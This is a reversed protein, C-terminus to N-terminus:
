AEDLSLHGLDVVDSADYEDPRLATALRVDVRSIPTSLSELRASLRAEIACRLASWASLIDGPNGVDLADYREVVWQAATEFLTREDWEPLPGDPLWDESIVLIVTLGYNDTESYEPKPMVRIQTVAEDLIRLVNPNKAEGPREKLWKIVRDVDNPLAARGVPRALRYALSRRVHSPVSAVVDLTAAYGRDLATTADLDAFLPRGREIWEVEVYNPRTGRRVDDVLGNSLDVLPAVHVLARGSRTKHPQLDCTQTVVMVLSTDVRIPLSVVEAPNLSLYRKAAMHVPEQGGAVIGITSCGLVDGQRLRGIADAVTDVPEM